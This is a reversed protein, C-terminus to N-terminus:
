CVDHSRLINGYNVAKCTPCQWDGLFEEGPTLKRAEQCGKCQVSRALIEINMAFFFLLMGPNHDGCSVCTWDGKRRSNKDGHEAPLEIM